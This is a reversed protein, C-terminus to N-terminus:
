KIRKFANKYVKSNERKWIAIVLIEIKDDIIKYVIRIKKNNVYIKKLWALNWTLNDWIKPNISIKEIKKFVQVRLSQDIKKLDNEVKPDYLINYM